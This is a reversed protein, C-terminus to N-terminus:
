LALYPEKRKIFSTIIIVIFSQADMVDTFLASSSPRRAYTILVDAQNQKRSAFAFLSSRLSRLVLQFWWELAITEQRWKFFYYKRTVLTLRSRRSTMLWLSVSIAKSHFLLFFCTTHPTRHEHHRPQANLSKLSVSFVCVRKVKWAVVVVDEEDYRADAVKNGVRSGSSQKGLDFASVCDRSGLLLMMRSWNGLPVSLDPRM